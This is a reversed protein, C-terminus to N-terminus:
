KCTLLEAWAGWPFGLIALNARFRWFRWQWRAQSPRWVHCIQPVWAPAVSAFCEMKTNAESVIKACGCTVPFNCRTTGLSNAFNCLDLTAEVPLQLSALVVCQGTHCQSGYCTPLMHLIWTYKSCWSLRHHLSLRGDLQHRPFVLLKKADSLHLKSCRWPRTEIWTNPLCEGLRLGM